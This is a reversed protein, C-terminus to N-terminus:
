CEYPVSMEYSLKLTICNVIDNRKASMTMNNREIIPNPMCKSRISLNKNKM